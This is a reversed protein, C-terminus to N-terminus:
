AAWPRSLAAQHTRVEDMEQMRGGRMVQMKMKNMGHMRGKDMGQIRQGDWADKGQGDGRAARQNRTGRRSGHCLEKGPKADGRREASSLEGHARAGRGVRNGSTEEKVVDRSHSQEAGQTLALSIHASIVNRNYMISNFYSLFAILM